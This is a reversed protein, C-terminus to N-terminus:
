QAVELAPLTPRGGGPRGSVWREVAVLVQEVSVDDMCNPSRGCHRAYCPSCPLSSQVKEGRGYLDIEQECTPGFLVVCPVDMAIAVHMAMTDGSVLVNCREVLAAFVLEDRDCGADIVEPCAAAIRRNREREDPGGLLAVRWNTRAAISRALSVFKQPPWNKNAFVRGAGTNFGIVVEDDSVGAGAWFARAQTRHATSPYLRYRQGRYELGLVEYLLQQYSKTNEFFKKNDDLGLLFYDVCEPNLPFPTGSPSLGIGRREHAAVRMALATPGPEKDLSLCLDFRECELHCLTEADFPLPRDILPHNALMRVGNPRTVWTIHSAPWREKLGPLIAATRIVDGLAGLKIILIRHGMPAYRECPSPCVGQVGVACPRDGRYHRCDLELWQGAQEGWTPPTHNTMRKM